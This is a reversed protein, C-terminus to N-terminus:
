FQRPKGERSLPMMVPTATDKLLHEKIDDQMTGCLKSAQLHTLMCLAAHEYKRTLAPRTQEGLNISSSSTLNQWM